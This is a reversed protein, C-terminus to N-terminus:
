SQRITFAEGAGRRPQGDAKACVGPTGLTSSLASERRPVDLGEDARLKRSGIGLFALPPQRRRRGDQRAKPANSRNWRHVGMSGHLPIRRPRLEGGRM